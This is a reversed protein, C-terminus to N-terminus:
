SKNSMMLNMNKVLQNSTEILTNLKEEIVEIRCEISQTSKNELISMAQTVTRKDIVQQVKNKCFVDSVYEYSDTLPVITDKDNGFDKITAAHLNTKVKPYFVTNGKNPFISVKGRITFESSFYNTFLSIAKNLWKFQCNYIGSRSLADIRCLIDNFEAQNRIAQTDSVALGNLLNFLIVAFLVFSLFLSYKYYSDLELSSADFEGTFMLITKTFAVLPNSFRNFDDEKERENIPPKNDYQIYFCLTFTFIFFSYLLFSKVFTKFVAKLMLLHTSIFSFPFSGVLLFLGCALVLICAVAMNRQLMLDMDQNFYYWKLYFLTSIVPHHLLYQHERSKALFQIPLLFNNMQTVNDQQSTVFNKYSIIIEYNKDDFDHETSSICDDLHKELVSARMGNLPLENYNSGLSICAGSKLLKRIAKNNYFKVAYHLATFKNKDTANINVKESELLIDFSKWFRKYENMNDNNENNLIRITDILPRANPHIEILPHQLLKELCYWNGNSWAIHIPTNVWNETRNYDLGSEFMFDFVKHASNKISEVLLQIKEDNILGDVYIGYLEVFHEINDDLLCYHLSELIALHEAKQNVSDMASYTEDLIRRLEPDKNIDIGVKTLSVFIEIIENKQVNNMQQNQIVYHLPTMKGQDAINASAGYHLLIKICEIVNMENENNLNKCLSNLPTLDFYTENVVAYGSSLLQKFNDPDQSDVAFHIAPKNFFKNINNPNCGADVCAKVFESCGPTKLSKEFICLNKGDYELANAGASLAARFGCIDHKDFAELLKIQPVKKNSSKRFINIFM